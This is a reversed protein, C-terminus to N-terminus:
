RRKKKRPRPPIAGPPAPQGAGAEDTATATPARGSPATDTAAVPGRRGRAAPRIAGTPSGVASVERADLMLTGGTLAGRQELRVRVDRHRPEREKLFAVIPSAVFVSSYTGTVLGVLLALSFEQLTSAGLAISGVIYLTLVPLVAVLTTGISRTIVQNLSLNMIDTYTYRNILAPRATLEHAKDFVIVTDYLSYGLITLFSIVTAPSVLLGLISYVAISLLVDHTMAVMSALAMRWELRWWIYISVLVTFIILARIAKETIEEGWTPGVSNVSEVTGLGALERGIESARDPDKLQSQIRLVEGGVIQIKSEGEGLPRLFDRAEAVSVEPARVEWQTGGEFDISWNFGRTVISVVGILLLMASLIVAPRWLRPFDVVNEGRHIRQLYGM